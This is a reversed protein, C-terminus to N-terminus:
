PRTRAITVEVVNRGESRRYTLEDALAKVLQIGWGGAAGEALADAIRPAPATRPDFPRGDDQVRVVLADSGVRIDMDIAHSGPPPDFAYRIANVVLEEVAVRAAYATRPTMGQDRLFAVVRPALKRFEDLDDRITASFTAM